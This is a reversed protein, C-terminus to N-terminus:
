WTRTAATRYITSSPLATRNADASGDPINPIGTSDSFRVTVPIPSGNFLVARSLGLAEPAGTFHGEAVIGKAHNARFGPHAGFVKNMADVIQESIPQDEARAIGALALGFAIAAILLKDKKM